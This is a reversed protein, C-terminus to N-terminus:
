MWSGKQYQLHLIIRRVHINRNYYIRQFEAKFKYTYMINNNTECKGKTVYQKKGVIMRMIMASM